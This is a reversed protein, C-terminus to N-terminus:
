LKNVLIVTISALISMASIVAAVDPGIVSANVKTKNPEVVVVDNQSLYYYPSDVFDEKTIDVRNFTRKGDTERIVLVNHRKGYITLDGAQSLAELLTVRESAIKISGPHNVEGIVSVKYNLIRLNVTPNTIYQSVETEIKKVAETRTLGGLHIQGIVPFKIDGYADVLYTKIGDQNENIQYNGQIQPMNFPYTAEPQDASVIISLLDDKQLRPEYNLLEGSNKGSDVNQLYAINKRSACSFLTIALFFFVTKILTNFKM